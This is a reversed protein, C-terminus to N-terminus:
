RVDAGDLANRDADEYRGEICCYDGYCLQHLVTDFPAPETVSWATTGENDASLDTHAGEAEAQDLLSDVFQMSEGWNHNGFRQDSLVERKLRTQVHYHCM